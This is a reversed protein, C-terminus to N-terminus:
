PRSIDFVEKRIRSVLAATEGDDSLEVLPQWGMGNLLTQLHRFLLRESDAIQLAEMLGQVQGLATMGECLSWPGLSTATLSLGRTDLDGAEVADRVIRNVIESMPGSCALAETRRAESTQEWVAETLVYHKLKMHQPHRRAFELEAVAIAIMRERPTGGQWREVKRFFDLHVEFERSTLALLLDEKSQFHQYLTGTAYDCAAALPGMQLKMFGNEAIMREATDLFLAERAERERLKREQTGM